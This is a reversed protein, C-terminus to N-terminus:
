RWWTYDWVEFGCRQYEKGKAQTPKKEIEIDVLCELVAKGVWSELEDVEEPTIVDQSDRQAYVMHVSAARIRSKPIHVIEQIMDPLDSVPPGAIIDTRVPRDQSPLAPQTTDSAINRTAPFWVSALHFLHFTEM